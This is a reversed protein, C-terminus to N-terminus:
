KNHCHAQLMHLVVVTAYEARCLNFRDFPEVLAGGWTTTGLHRATTVGPWLWHTSAVWLVAYGPVCPSRRAIVLGACQSGM